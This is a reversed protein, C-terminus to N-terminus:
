PALSPGPPDLLDRARAQPSYVKTRQMLWQRLEEVPVVVRRGFRVTKPGRGNKLEGIFLSRGIGSLRAAEEVSVGVSTLQNQSDM